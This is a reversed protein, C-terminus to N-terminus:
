GTWGKSLETEKYFAEAGKAKSRKGAVRDGEPRQGAARRCYSTGPNFLNVVNVIVIELTEMQEYLVKRYEPDGEETMKIM